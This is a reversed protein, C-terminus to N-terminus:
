YLQEKGLFSVVKTHVADNTPKNGLINLPLRKVRKITRVVLFGPLVWPILNALRKFIQTWTCVWAFLSNEQLIRCFVQLFRESARDGSPVSTGNPQNTMELSGRWYSLGCTPGETILEQVREHSALRPQWLLHAGRESGWTWPAGRGLMLGLGSILGDGGPTRVSHLLNM